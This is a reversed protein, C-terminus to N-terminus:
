DEFDEDYERGCHPCSETGIVPFPKEDDDADDGRSEDEAQAVRELFDAFDDVLERDCIFDCCIQVMLDLGWGRLDAMENLRHRANM